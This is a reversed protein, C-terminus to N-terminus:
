QEKENRKKLKYYESLRGEKEAETFFEVDQQYYEPLVEVFKMKQSRIVGTYSKLDNGKQIEDLIEFMRAATEPSYDKSALLPLFHYPKGCAIRRLGKVIGPNNRKLFVYIQKTVFVADTEGVSFLYMAGLGAGSIEIKSFFDAPNEGTLEWIISYGYSSDYISLSKGRLDSVSNVERDRTFVCAQNISIGLVEYSIIPTYGYDRILVSLQARNGVLAYREGPLGADKFFEAQTRYNEHVADVGLEDKIFDFLVKFFFNYQADTETGWGFLTSFIVQKNDGNDVRGGDVAGAQVVTCILFLTVVIARDMTTM